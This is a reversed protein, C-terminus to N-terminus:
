QIIYLVLHHATRFLLYIVSLSASSWISVSLFHDWTIDARFYQPLRLLLQKKDRIEICGPEAYRISENTADNLLNALQPSHGPLSHKTPFTAKRALIISQLKACNNKNFYLVHNQENPSSIKGRRRKFGSLHLQKSCALSFFSIMQSFSAHARKLHM